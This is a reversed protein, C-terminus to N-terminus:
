VFVDDHSSNITNELLKGFILSVVDEQAELYTEDPIDNIIFSGRNIAAPLASKVLQNVLPRLEIKTKM